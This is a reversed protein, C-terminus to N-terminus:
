GALNAVTGGPDDITLGLTFYDPKEARSKEQRFHFLGSNYRDDARQFLNSLRAYVGSGKQVASQM